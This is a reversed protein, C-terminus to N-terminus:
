KKVEGLEVKWLSSIWINVIITNIQNQLLLFRGLIDILLMVSFCHWIINMVKKEESLQDELIPKHNDYASNCNHGWGHSIEVGRYEIKVWKICYDM